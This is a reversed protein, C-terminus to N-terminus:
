HVDVTVRPTPKGTLELVSLSEVDEAPKTTPSLSWTRYGQATNLTLRVNLGLQSNGNDLAWEHLYLYTRPLSLTIQHSDAGTSSLAAHFEKPDYGAAYGTGFAWAPIDHVHGKGVVASGTARVPATCGSELRKGYSRADVNVEIQWAAAGTTVADVLMEPGTVECTLTLTKADAQARLSVDGKADAGANMPVPINLGLNHTLTVHRTSTLQLGDGKVVLNLPATQVPPSAATLDFTLDLPQTAGPKLDFKGQLSKGLFEAEWSGRQDSGSTNVIQCGATFRAEQNFVTELAWGVSLPQVTARLTEVRVQRGAIVLVPLRVENEQVPAADASQRAYQLTVTQRAGAPLSVQPQAKVPRWGAAILPLVTLDLRQKTDNILAGRLELEAGDKQWAASINALSWAVKVPGDLMEKLIMGGLQQHLAVRPQFRGDATEHFFGRYTSAAREFVQGEDKADTEPLEMVRSLDGLDAFMVGDDEALERMADALPRASGLALEAKTSMPLWPACLMVEAGIEHAAEIAQRVGRVFTVPSMGSESEAQGYCLLVLDVPSQRATSALIAAAELVSGGARTLTRITVGPSLVADLDGAGAERVGGTFFFQAALDRAFVAPFSQMPQPKGDETWMELADAGGLVLLHLTERQSLQRLTDPLLKQLREQRPASLEFSLKTTLKPKPLRAELARAEAAATPEASVAQTPVSVAQTQAGLPSLLSASLCAFLAPFSLTRHHGIM